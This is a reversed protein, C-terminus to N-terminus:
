RPADGPIFAGSGSAPGVYSCAAVLTEGRRLVLRPYNAPQGRYICNDVAWGPPVDPVPAAVGPDLVVLDADSGVRIAGKRPHLGFIRAPAESVVRALTEWDLRAALLPLLLGLGAVGQISELFGSGYNKTARPWASHDTAVVDIEGGELAQWLADRDAPTRLPPAMLYDGADARLYQSDDFLLFQPCTEGWVAQGEARAAALRRVAAATSLHVFYIPCVAARGLVLGRSVSEEEGVPPRSAAFHDYGTRGTARAAEIRWANLGANEAHLALLGGAAGVAEMLDFLEGDTMPEGLQSYAMFAKFSPVGREVLEPIDALARESPDFIWCHLAVDVTSEAIFRLREELPGMLDQGRDQMAFDIVTTTGGLAAAISAQPFRDSSRVVEGDLRVYPISVHVHADVAGPLVVCGEADILSRGAHHEAPDEIAAITEGDVLVDAVRAGEPTVVLGGCIALREM